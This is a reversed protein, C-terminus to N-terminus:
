RPRGPATRRAKAVEDLVFVPRRKAFDTLFVVSQDYAENSLAKATDEYVADTILASIRRIEQDLWGNESAAHACQELTDLYKARLDTFALARRVLANDETRSFIPLEIDSFTNDRDWPLVRHTNSDAQRYLYFNAMGAWGVFGDNEALFNEIALYTVLQDLDIYESVRSRWAADVDHNVERFLDRIPSYLISDPELRHTQAEFRAKYLDLDDGLDEAHFGDIYKHDFLYGANEGLTRALYDKDMAEVFAYVGQYQGNIYVRGFSERSAPQGLHAIFAMSTRERIMAPDNLENDLIISNLGLFKQGTIYRNFDIRLGPKTASRTALGRVRIGVNRVRIGRWVFDAPYYKNEMYRERLEALDRSSVLLRVEHMNESDFFDASTPPQPQPQSSQADAFAPTALAVLAVLILQKM